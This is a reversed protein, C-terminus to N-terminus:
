PVCNGDATSSGCCNTARRSALLMAGGGVLTEGAIVDDVPTGAIVDDGTTVDRLNTEMGVRGSCDDFQTFRRFRYGRQRRTYEEAAAATPVTEKGYLNEVRHRLM